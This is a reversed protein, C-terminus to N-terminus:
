TVCVIGAELGFPLYEQLAADLNAMRQPQKLHSFAGMESGDEAGTRIEVACTPGLQAYAQHGYDGSTFVPTLRARVAAEEADDACGDLALDPQCRYRRPTRSDSPVRSFRVCGIQRREAAAPETFISGSADLSRMEARGFITSSDIAVAAGPASVAAGGPAHVITADLSLEPVTDPLTIPGAISRVVSVKLRDNQLGPTASPNADLGGTGPALTCHNVEISGLNGVLVRLRGEVLLGDLVLEGADAAEGPATGRVSIDGRIHPRLGSPDLRGPIRRTVGPEEPVPEEPWGAALLLLRSGQPVAVTHSGTLDERYTRSDMLAIVGVTGPPQNNWSDVAERLTNVIEDEVPALTRSVGIQWTVERTLAQRVSDRRDYPGGGVDGSFGFAYSVEVDAPLAVGGLVALRGLVPDVAVRTEFSTGDARTFTRGAPPTWGPADWGGLDCIVLEEPLLPEEARDFFVEIVPLTGFYATEPTGEGRVMADRYAELDDYLARRRLPGPVDIEDALHTIENETRPRNFLPVDLGLANFRFRGGSPEVAPRPTSRSVFYSQLRWLFLGVNAINYRGRGRAIRRVEGTRAATEFPTGLLDLGSADRLDPTRLNSPRIHNMHQTAALLQFFESARSPWNTVDRALQELVTATGKRRRYRLTNAVYARLSYAGGAGGVSHLPRVGLLDGIYPVAWEDCTEIFWNEYLGEVDAELAELETEIVSLLARLPEGQAADRVRYVAPLLHYLREGHSWTM